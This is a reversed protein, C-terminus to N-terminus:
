PAPLPREFMGLWHPLWIGSPCLRQYHRGSSVRHRSVKKAVANKERTNQHAHRHRGLKRMAGSALDPSCRIAVGGLCATCDLSPTDCARREAGTLTTHSRFSRHECLTERQRSWATHTLRIARGRRRQYLATNNWDQPRHSIWVNWPCRREGEKRGDPVSRLWSRRGRTTSHSWGASNREIRDSLNGHSRRLPAGAM